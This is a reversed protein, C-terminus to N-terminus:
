VFVRLVGPRVGLWPSTANESLHHSGVAHLVFMPGRSAGKGLCWARAVPLAAPSRAVPGAGATPLGAPGIRRKWRVGRNVENRRGDIESARGREPIRGM